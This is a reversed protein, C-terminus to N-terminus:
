FDKMIVYWRAGFTNSALLTVRKGAPIQSISQSDTIYLPQNVKVPYNDSGDGAAIINITRRQQTEPAPLNVDTGSSRPRSVWITYNPGNTADLTYTGNDRSNVNIYHFKVDAINVESQAAAADKWVPAAGAGSSTLIQGANGANGATTANGGVNLENTIQLGGNVHLRRQPTSTGVGMNGTDGKIRFREVLTGGTSNGFYFDELNGNTTSTGTRISGIAWNAGGSTTGSNTFGLLSMNGTALPSTNRLALIVGNGNTSPADILNYRYSNPTNASIVHLKTQPSSTGVGVNGNEDIRLREQNSTRLSLDTLVTIGNGRYKSIIGSGFTTNFNGNARPAFYISGIDDDMNLNGPAAETGSASRFIMAPNKSTGYGGFYFDNETNEGKNDVSIDVIGNPNTTGFGIRNNVTNVSLTNDDISFHNTGTTATSTFALTKDAQSVTRNGTLTGNSNYINLSNGIPAVNDPSHLKVWAAGDYFYYGVADVYIATGTQTGTSINNIYILTSTQISKMSQARQRDVRPVLLGDVSTTSGTANKATIDLTSQPNSTSIGVQAIAISSSLVGIILSLKKM